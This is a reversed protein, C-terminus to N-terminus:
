WIKKGREVLDLLERLDRVATCDPDSPKGDRNLWIADMGAARAGIVDTEYRDGIHVARAAAIGMQALTQKFIDPNPKDCGAYASAMIVDFYSGISVQSCRDKLNWSWNSIIALRYGASQLSSLTPLVDDYLRLAGPAGYIEALRATYRRLLEEDSHGLYYLLERRRRAEAEHDYAETAPFTFTAADQDEREWVASYAERLQEVTVDLGADHWAQRAIEEVSPYFWVLTYGMDFCVADYRRPM